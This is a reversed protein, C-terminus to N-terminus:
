SMIIEEMHSSNLKYIKNVFNLATKRHAIVIITSKKNISSFCKNITNQVIEECYPDLASTAEDFILIQPKRMLARAIAIRQKQGGSLSSLETGDFMTNYGHPLESIFDHANAIKAINIVDEMDYDELGYTINNLITDSFLINDQSVYGIQKKIWKNDYFNININDIYITGQQQKVIGLLLKAITSKGCGSQGIIGIKCGEGIEFNFDHLILKNPSKLYNFNINKFIINGRIKYSLPIFSSNNYYQNDLIHLINNLSKTCKSYDSNFTIIGEISELLVHKHLIFSVININFYDSYLIIFINVIIDINYISITNISHYLIEFWYHKALDDCLKNIKRSVRHENAFSKIISIHSITEHIHAAIKKNIEQFLLMKKNYFNSANKIIFCYSIIILTLIFSLKYSINSLLYLIFIINSINRTYVNIYLSIIDSTIRIDNNCIDLLTSVPTTEYYEHKQFLIKNYILKILKNHFSNQTYTFIGCRIATSIITIITCKVYTDFVSLDGTLMISLYEKTYIKYYSSIIGFVLGIILKNANDKCLNLYKYLM